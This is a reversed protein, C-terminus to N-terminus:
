DGGGIVKNPIFKHYCYNITTLIFGASIMTRILQILTMGMFSYNNWDAMDLYVVNGNAFINSVGSIHSTTNALANLDITFKPAVGQATNMNLLADYSNRFKDVQFKSTFADQLNGIDLEEEVPFPSSINDIKEELATIGDKVLDFETTLTTGIDGIATGIADIDQAQWELQQKIDASINGLGTVGSLINELTPMVVAEEYERNLIEDVTLNIVDNALYDNTFADPLTGDASISNGPYPVAKADLSSNEWDYTPNFSLDSLTLNRNGVVTTAPAYVTTNTSDTYIPSNNQIIQTNSIKYMATPTSTSTRPSTWSSWSTGTSTRYETYYTSSPLFSYLGQGQWDAVYMPKNACVLYYYGNNYYIAQHPYTATTVPSQPFSGVWVQNPSTSGTIPVVNTGQIYNTSFYNKLSTWMSDAILAYSAGKALNATTLWQNKITTTQKNFYDNVFYKMDATSTYVAGAAITAAAVLVMIPNNMAVTDAYTQM